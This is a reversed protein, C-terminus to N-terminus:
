RKETGENWTLPYGKVTNAHVLYFFVVTVL